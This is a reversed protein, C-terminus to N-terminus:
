EGLRMKEDKGQQSTDTRLGDNKQQTGGTSNSGDGSGGVDVEHKNYVLNNLHGKLVLSKVAM